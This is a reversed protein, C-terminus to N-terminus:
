RRLLRILPPTLLTVIPVLIWIRGRSLDYDALLGSWPAGFLYHGGLFEFAITLVLWVGGALWAERGSVLNLWPSALWGLGFILLCLIITSVGHAAQEDMVEVLFAQRVAGNLVAAVLLVLWAISVRGLLSMAQVAAAAEGVFWATRLSQWSARLRWRREYRYHFWALLV